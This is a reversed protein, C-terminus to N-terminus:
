EDLETGRWGGHMTMTGAGLSASQEAAVLYSSALTQAQAFYEFRLEKLEKPTYYQNVINGGVPGANDQERSVLGNNRIRAGTNLLLQYMALYSEASKLAAARAADEADDGEAADDYADAGVWVKLTRSADQICPTLRPEGFSEAIDFLTRLYDADILM